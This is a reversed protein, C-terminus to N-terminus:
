RMHTTENPKKSREYVFYPYKPFSLSFGNEIVKLWALYALIPKWFRYSSYEWIGRNVKPMLHCDLFLVIM